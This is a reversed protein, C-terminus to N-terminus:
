DSSKTLFISVILTSHVDMKVALVSCLWTQVNGVNGVKMVINM